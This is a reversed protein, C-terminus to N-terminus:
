EDAAAQTQPTILGRREMEIVLDRAQNYPIGLTREIKRISKAGNQWATYADEVSVKQSRLPLPPMLPLGEENGSPTEEQLPETGVEFVPSQYLPAQPHAVEHELLRAALDFEIAQVLDTLDTTEVVCQGVRNTHRNKVILDSRTFGAAAAASPRVCFSMGEMVNALAERLDEDVYDVQACLWLQMHAKLGRAALADICDILAAYDRQAKERKPGPTSTAIRAKLMRRLRLFEEIYVIFISQQALVAPAMQYRFEMFKTIYILYELVQDVTTAHLRVENCNVRIRKIHPLDAFLRGTKDELDLIAVQVHAPDHTAAIISMLAAIESSKGRQSAGIFKLHKGRFSMKMARGNEDTLSRGVYVQYSNSDIHKIAEEITIRRMAPGDVETTDEAFIEAPRTYEEITEKEDRTDEVIGDEAESPVQPHINWAKQWLTRKKPNSAGTEKHKFRASMESLGIERGLLSYVEHGHRWVVYSALGGVVLGTLGMHGVVDAISMVALTVGAGGLTRQESVPSKTTTENDQAEEESNLTTESM